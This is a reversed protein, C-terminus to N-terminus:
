GQRQMSAFSSLCPSTSFEFCGAKLQRAGHCVAIMDLMSLGGLLLSVLGSKVPPRWTRTKDTRTERALGHPRKGSKRLLVPVADRGCAMLDMLHDILLKPRNKRWFRIDEISRKRCALCPM